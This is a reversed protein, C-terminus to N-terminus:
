DCDTLCAPLCAPLGWATYSTPLNAGAQSSKVHHTGRIVEAARQEKTRHPPALSLGPSLGPSLWVYGDNRPSWGVLQILARLNGLLHKGLNM